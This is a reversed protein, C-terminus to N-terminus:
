ERGVRMYLELSLMNRNLGFSFYKEQQQFGLAENSRNINTWTMLDSSVVMAFKNSLHFFIGPALALRQENNKIQASQGYLPNQGNTTTGSLFEAKIRAFPRIWHDAQANPYYNLSPSFYFQSTKASYEGNREMQRNHGLSAGISLHKGILHHLSLGWLSQSAKMGEGSVVQFGANTGLFFGELGPGGRQAKWAKDADEFQKDLQNSAKKTLEPGGTCSIYSIYYEGDAVHPEFQMYYYNDVPRIKVPIMYDVYATKVMSDSTAEGDGCSSCLIQTRFILDFDEAPKSSSKERLLIIKTPQQYDANIPELFSPMNYLEFRVEEGSMYQYFRYFEGLLHHYYPENKVFSDYSGEILGAIFSEEDKASSLQFILKQVKAVGKAEAYNQNFENVVKYAASFLDYTKIKFDRSTYSKQLATFNERAM